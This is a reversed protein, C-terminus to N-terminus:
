FYAHNCNKFSCSNLKSIHCTARNHTVIFASIFEEVEERWLAIVRNQKYALFCKLKGPALPCMLLDGRKTGEGLATGLTSCSDGKM